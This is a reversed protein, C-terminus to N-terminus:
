ETTLKRLLVHVDLPADFRRQLKHHELSTVFCETGPGPETVVAVIAEATLRLSLTRDGKFTLTEPSVLGTSCKQLARYLAGSLAEDVPQPDATESLSIAIDLPTRGDPGQLKIGVTQFRELPPPAKKSACAAVLLVVGWVCATRVSVSFLRRM